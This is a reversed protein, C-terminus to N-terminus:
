HKKQKNTVQLGGIKALMELFKRGTSSHHHKTPKETFSQVPIPVDRRAIAELRKKFSIPKGYDDHSKALTQVAELLTNEKGTIFGGPDTIARFADGEPSRLQYVKGKYHVGFPTEPHIKHNILENVVQAITFMVLGGFLFNLLQQRGQPRIAQGAFKARSEAFDPALLILRLADQVTRNRGLLKYNLGGFATNVEKATLMVVKERSLHKYTDLNRALVDRAVTMKLAPIKEKFLYDNYGHILPGIGPIAKLGEGSLGESFDMQGDYNAVMLGGDVLERQWSESLDLKVLNFPNERSHRM